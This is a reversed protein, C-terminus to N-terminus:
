SNGKLAFIIVGDREYVIPFQDPLDRLAQVNIRQDLTVGVHPGIYIYDIGAEQCLRIAESSPLPTTHLSRALENVQAYTTAEVGRESGYTMPPLTTSRQTWYPIWWGGDDGIFLSSGYGGYSNILFRADPATDANIWTMAQADAPTFIQFSPDIIEPLWTCTWLSVAVFVTSISALARTKFRRILAATVVGLGYAALPILLVYLCLYAAFGTVIGSLPLSVVYPVTLLLLLLTWVGCLAIRWRRQAVAIICGVVALILLPMKLYFPAIPALTAVSEGYGNTQQAIYGGAIRVLKGQMVTMIWPLSLLATGSGILTATVSVRYLAARSPQRAGIVILYAAIFVAAIVTLIYHTLVLATTLLVALVLSRWDRRPQEIARMWAVLLIPLLVQGFLQTYRGWNVFYAPQTNVFGTMLVAWLGATQEGGLRTTLVYASTLTAVSALQGVILVSQPVSLLTLWHLFVANAHFGYHYTFSALPAYPQWSSFLGNNDALLQTILTHHYSDAWMAVPLDRVLYLRLLLAILLLSLLTMGHWSLESPSFSQITERWSQRHPWVLAITALGVYGFTVWRNWPLGVLYFMNLLLPPLAIGVGVALCVREARTLTADIWAYRLVVLGPLVWLGVFAIGTRLLVWLNSGLWAGVSSPGLMLAILALWGSILGTHVGLLSRASVGRLWRGRISQEVSHM